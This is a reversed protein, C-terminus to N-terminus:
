EITYLLMVLILEFLDTYDRIIVLRMKWDWFTNFNVVAINDVGYWRYCVYALLPLRYEAQCILFLNRLSPWCPACWCTTWSLSSTFSSSLFSRLLFCVPGDQGLMGPNWHLVSCGGRHHWVFAEDSLLSFAQISGFSCYWLRCQYSGSWNM